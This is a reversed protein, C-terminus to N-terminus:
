RTLTLLMICFSYMRAFGALSAAALALIPSCCQQACFTWEM